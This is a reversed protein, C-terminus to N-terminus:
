NDPRWTMYYWGTENLFLKRFFSNKASVIKFGLNRYLKIAGINSEAVYLSLYEHEHVTNKAQNILQHGIGQGRFTQDVVVYDIYVENQEVHHELISFITLLKLIKLPSYKFFLSVFEKMTTDSENNRKLLLSGAIHHETEAIYQINSSEKNPLQWFKSSLQIIETNTFHSQKFKNHFSELVLAKINEGNKQNDYTVTIDM